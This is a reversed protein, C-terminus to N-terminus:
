SRMKQLSNKGELLRAKVNNNQIINANNANDLAMYGQTIDHAIKRIEEDTKNIQMQTLENKLGLYVSEQAIMNLRTDYSETSLLADNKLIELEQVAKETQYTIYDIKDGKTNSLVYNEMRQYDGKLKTLSEVKKNKAQGYMDM